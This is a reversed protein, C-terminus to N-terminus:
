DKKIIKRQKKVLIYQKNDRSLYKSKSQLLHYLANRTERNMIKQEEFTSEDHGCINWLPPKILIFEKEGPGRESNTTVSDIRTSVTTPVDM